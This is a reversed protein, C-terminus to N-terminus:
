PMKNIGDFHPSPNNSYQLIPYFLSINNKNRKVWLEM